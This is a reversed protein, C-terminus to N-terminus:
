RSCDLSIIGIMGATVTCKDTISDGINVTAAWEKSHGNLVVPSFQAGIWIQPDGSLDTKIRTVTGSVEFRKGKYDQDFAAENAKYAQVLTMAAVKPLVEPAAPVPAAQVPEAAPTVMSAAVAQPKAPDRACVRAAVLVAIVGLGIRGWSISTV